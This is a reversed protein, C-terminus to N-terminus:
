QPNSVMLVSSEDDVLNTYVEFEKTGIRSPCLVNHMCIEKAAVLKGPFSTCHGHLNNLSPIKPWELPLVPVTMRGPVV